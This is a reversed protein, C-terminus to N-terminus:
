LQIFNKYNKKKKSHLNMDLIQIILSDLSVRKIEPLTFDEMKSYEEESYLRFCVGPGTRGARGIFIAKWIFM